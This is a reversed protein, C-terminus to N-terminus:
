RAARTSATTGFADLLVPLLAHMKAIPQRAPTLGATFGAATLRAQVGARSTIVHVPVDWSAGEGAVAAAPQHDGIVVMVLDRGRQAQLYGGLTAFAYSVANAYSPSLNLYDPKRAQARSVDPESYPTPSLVRVWDPQYPATPGFPAHTSTTPFFVFRPGGAPAGELVDLRALAFQDPVTWWGFRPGRYDLQATDYIHDFRYFAGEPWAHRLGPMLAVTRYGRRAFATVLTDREQAMLTGNTSEDRTEVGTLLSIHALWSSGGFTPSEVFASVVERGSASIDAALRTRHGALVASVDARDYTVAGYSEIFTIFVDAGMVRSLDSDTAPRPTTAAGPRTTLQAALLRAQGWYTPAVPPAFSPGPLGSATLRDSAGYAALATLAVAGLALRWPRAALARGIQGFAWRAAVYAGAVLAAVALVVGLLAPGAVADTMMAVVASMHRLDWFLNVPRGYLAPAVVDLYRGIVLTVWLMAVVRVVWSGVVGRRWSVAVLIALALALEVSLHGRWTVKPTPWVNYFALSQNLLVISVVVAPVQRATALTLIQM